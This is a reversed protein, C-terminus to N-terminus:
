VIECQVNGNSANKKVSVCEGFMTSQTHALHETTKGISHEARVLSEGTLVDFTELAGSKTLCVLRVSDTFQM